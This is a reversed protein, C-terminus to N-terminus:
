GRIGTYKPAATLRNGKKRDTHTYTHVHTHFRLFNGEKRGEKQDFGWTRYVTSPLRDNRGWKELGKALMLHLIRREILWLAFCARRLHLIEREKLWLGFFTLKLYLIGRELIPHSLLQPSIVTFGISGDRRHSGQRSHDNYSPPRKLFTISNEGPCKASFRSDSEPGFSGFSGLVSKM